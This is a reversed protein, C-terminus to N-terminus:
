SREPKDSKAPQATPSGEPPYDLTDAIKEKQTSANDPFSLEGAERWSQVQEEAAKGREGDLGSDRTLYATQSPFAFGTGADKVIDIVKLFVDERIAAFEPFLSTNAFAHIQLDLSYAGFGIFRVRMPSPNIRPHAILMERLKVLVYQLQEPTTEYRLGITTVIRMSDRRSFNIINM